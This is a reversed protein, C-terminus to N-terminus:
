YFNSKLLNLYAQCISFVNPKGITYIKNCNFATLCTLIPGLRSPSLFIGTSNIDSYPVIIIPPHLIIILRFDKKSADALLALQRTVLESRTVM